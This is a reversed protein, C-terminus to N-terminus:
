SHKSDRGSRRELELATMLEAEGRFRDSFDSIARRKSRWSPLGQNTTWQGWLMGGAWHIYEPYTDKIRHWGVTRAEDPALEPDIVALVKRSVILAAHSVKELPFGYKALEKRTNRMRTGSKCSDDFLMLNGGAEDILRLFAPYEDSTPFGPGPKVSQHVCHNLGGLYESCKPENFGRQQLMHRVLQWGLEGSGSLVAVDKLGSAMMKDALEYAAEGLVHAEADGEITKWNYSFDPGIENLTLISPLKLGPWRRLVDAPMLVSKAEDSCQKQGWIPIAAGESRDAAALKPNQGNDTKVLSEKM